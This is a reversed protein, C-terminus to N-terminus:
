LWYKAKPAVPMAMASTTTSMTQQTSSLRWLALWAQAAEVGLWDSGTSAGQNEQIETIRGTMRTAAQLHGIMKAKQTDPTYAGSVQPLNWPPKTLMQLMSARRNESPETSTAGMTPKRSVSDM